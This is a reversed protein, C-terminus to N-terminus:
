QPLNGVNNVNTITTEGMVVKSKTIAKTSGQAAQQQINKPIIHGNITINFESKVVRDEGVTVEVTSPFEDIRARVLFKNKDGWYGGEGYSIAEILTNM